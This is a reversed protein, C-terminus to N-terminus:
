SNAKSLLALPVASTPVLSFLLSPFRLGSNLSLPSCKRTRPLPSFTVALCTNPILSQYPGEARLGLGGEGSGPTKSEWSIPNSPLCKGM